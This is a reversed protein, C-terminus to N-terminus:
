HKSKNLHHPVMVKIVLELSSPAKVKCLHIYQTTWNDTLFMSILWRLNQMLFVKTMILVMLLMYNSWDVVRESWIVLTPLCQTFDMFRKVRYSRCKNSGVNM